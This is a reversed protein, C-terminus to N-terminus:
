EMEGVCVNTSPGPFARRQATELSDYWTAVAGVAVLAATETRLVYRCLKVPLFGADIARSKETSDFGGEPGVLMM